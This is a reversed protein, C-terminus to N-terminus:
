LGKLNAALGTSTAWDELAAVLAVFKQKSGKLDGSSATVKLNSISDFIAAAQAKEAESADLVATARQFEEVWSSSLTSSLGKLDGAELQSGASSGLHDVASSSSFVDLLRMKNGCGM